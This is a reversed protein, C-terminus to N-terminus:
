HSTGSLMGAPQPCVEWMLRPLEAGGSGSGELDRLRAKREEPDEGVRGGKKKEKRKQSRLRCESQGGTSIWFNNTKLKAEQQGSLPCLTGQSDTNNQTSSFFFFLALSLSFFLHQPFLLPFFIRSQPPHCGFGNLKRGTSKPPLPPWIKFVRLASSLNWRNKEYIGSIKKWFLLNVLKFILSPPLSLSLNGWGGAFSHAFLERRFVFVM